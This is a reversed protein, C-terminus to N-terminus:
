IYYKAGIIKTHNDCNDLPLDLGLWNKLWLTHAKSKEGNNYNSKITKIFKPKTGNKESIRLTFLKKGLKLPVKIYGPDISTNYMIEILTSLSVKDLCVAHYSNGSSEIIHFDGLKWGEQLARLESELWELEFQDYDLFITFLNDQTRNTQGIMEEKRLKRWDLEFFFERNLLNSSFIKRM